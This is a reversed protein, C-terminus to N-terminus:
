NFKCGYKEAELKIQAIRDKILGPCTTPKYYSHWKINTVRPHERQIQCSLKAITSITDKTPYRPNTASFGGPNSSSKRAYNGIVVIAVTNYNAKVEGVSNFKDDAESLPGEKLGCKMAGNKKMLDITEKPAPKYVNTGAHSGSLDFPRGQSVKTKPSSSGPYPSNVSYHYAIMLWPDAATGRNLHIKNINQVTALPGTESHHLVITDVVDENRRCYSAKPDRELEPKEIEILPPTVPVDPLNSSNFISLWWPKPPCNVCDQSVALECLFLAIFFSLKM